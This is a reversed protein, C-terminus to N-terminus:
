VKQRMEFLNGSNKYILCYDHSIKVFGFTVYPCSSFPTSLLGSAYILHSERLSSYSFADM